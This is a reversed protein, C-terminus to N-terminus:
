PYTTTVTFRDGRILTERWELARDDIKGLREIFFAASGPESHLRSAQEATLNISHVTEEGATLTLNCCRQLADYLATHTLNQELVGRAEHTLWVRDIALPEDDAYRMRALYVLDADPGVGLRKAVEPDKRLEAVDITSRQTMGSKQVAAFLSYVPGFRRERAVHVVESPRGPQATVLGEQRLPTLAARITSRSVDYHKTLELEGPFTNDFEGRKIRQELDAKVKAWLTRHGSNNSGGTNGGTSDIHGSSAMAGTQGFGEDKAAVSVETSEKVM